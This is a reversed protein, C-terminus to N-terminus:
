AYNIYIGKNICYNGINETADSQEKKSAGGGWWGGFWGKNEPPAAERVKAIEINVRQRILLLNFVDLEEELLNCAELLM